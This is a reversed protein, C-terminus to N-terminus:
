KVVKLNPKKKATKQEADDSGKDEEDLEPMKDLEPEAEFMAGAGNERAYIALAATMPVVVQMPQGGFRANFRVEHDALQLGQVATPSINLVIQGESVFNQPVVTGVITADVVLHPTLDNDVIWEYLARLLYPRKPTM